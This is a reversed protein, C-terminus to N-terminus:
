DFKKWVVGFVLPLSASRLALGALLLTEKPLVVDLGLTGLALLDHHLGPDLVRM